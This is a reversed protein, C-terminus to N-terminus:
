QGKLEPLTHEGKREQGLVAKAVGGGAGDGFPALAGTSPALSQCHCLPMSHHERGQSAACAM